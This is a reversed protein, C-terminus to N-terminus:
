HTWCSYDYRLVFPSWCVQTPDTTGAHQRWEIAHEESLLEVLNLKYFPKETDEPDDIHEEPSCMGQVLKEM